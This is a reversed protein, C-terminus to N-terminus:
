ARRTMAELADDDHLRRLVDDVNSFDKRLPLYHRHPELVGSYHGEFLVLATRCAIAEFIKPSVQNMVVEGERGALFKARVEEYSAAPNAVLERQVRLALSGDDDFVNAGSETGLTAKCSSLFRFWDDGYIRDDEEWAIDTELGREDCLAKM